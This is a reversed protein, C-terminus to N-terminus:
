TSTKNKHSTQPRATDNTVDLPSNHVCIHSPLCKPLHVQTHINAVCILQPFLTALEGPKKICKDFTSPVPVPCHMHM